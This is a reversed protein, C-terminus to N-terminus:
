RINNDGEKVFEIYEIEFGLENVKPIIKEEVNEIVKSKM